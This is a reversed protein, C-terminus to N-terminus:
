LLHKVYIQCPNWEDWLTPLCEFEKFGMREYFANTQDYAEYHGKQVTKVQLFEYGRERAYVECEKFLRTGIGKRHSEKLVGMVYIEATASGTEKLTLFGQVEEDEYCAWFPMERSDEIYKQTSEPLGFWEPLNTLIQAAVADKELPNDLFRIEDTVKKDLLKRMIIEDEDAEGTAEFGLKEYLCRAAKNGEMYCLEVKDYKREKEMIDLALQAAVIGYGNGQYKEDIFLQSFEYARAEPCEYFLLMGIPTEDKYIMKVQSGQNRYVYARALLTTKDAVYSRQCQRVSLPTRWNKDNIEELYIM